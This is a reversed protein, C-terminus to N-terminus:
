DTSAHHRCVDARANERNRSAARHVSIAQETDELKAIIRTAQSYRYQGFETGALKHTNRVLLRVGLSAKM